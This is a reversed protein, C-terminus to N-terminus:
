TPRKTQCEDDRRNVQELNPNNDFVTVHSVCVRGDDGKIGARFSGTVTTFSVIGSANDSYEIGVGPM